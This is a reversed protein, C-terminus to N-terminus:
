LVRLFAEDESIETRWHEKHDEMFGKGVRVFCGSWASYIFWKDDDQRFTLGHPLDQGYRNSKSYGYIEKYYKM